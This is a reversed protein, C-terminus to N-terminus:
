APQIEIGVSDLLATGNQVTMSTRERGDEYATLDHLEDVLCLTREYQPQSGVNVFGGFGDVHVEEGPDVPDEQFKFTLCMRGIDGRITKINLDAGTETSRTVHVRPTPEAEAANGFAPFLLGTALGAGLAKKVLKGM